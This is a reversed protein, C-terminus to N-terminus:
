LTHRLKECVPWIEGLLANERTKGADRVIAEVLEDTHALLHRLMRELVRRRAAFSSAGWREQAARARRVIARVEDPAVVPAEGLPAGTAPDFCPITTTSKTSHATAEM